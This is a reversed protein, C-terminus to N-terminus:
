VLRRQGLFVLHGPVIVPARGDRIRALAKDLAAVAKKRRRELEKRRKRNLEMLKKLEGPEFKRAEPM